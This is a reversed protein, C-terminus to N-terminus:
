VTARPELGIEGQEASALVERVKDLLTARTFPKPLFHVGPRLVGQKAILDEAHGSTYLVKLTTRAARLRQAVGPGSLGPMVVDTLLLDIPGDFSDSIAQAETGGSAQLVRYDASTLMANAVARVAPDDEVLLVTARARPEVPLAAASRSVVPGRDSPAAPFAIAFCTGRGPGSEVFIRGGSQGVIGDVTALGLGTGRGPDKTTYFPEFMHAKVDESMGVGDDSVTLWVAGPPPLDSDSALPGLQRPPDASSSVTIAGGNPLADRANTILNLIVQEIQSPDAIIATRAAPDRRLVLQVHEPLVRRL